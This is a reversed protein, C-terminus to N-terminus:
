YHHYIKVKEKGAKATESVKKQIQIKAKEVERIEEQVIKMKATESMKEKQLQDNKAKRSKKAAEKM